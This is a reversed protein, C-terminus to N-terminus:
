SLAESASVYVSTGDSYYSVLYTGATSVDWSAGKKVESGLSITYASPNILTIFGAQGATENSFELDDNAAPTYQFNNATDLDLTGDTVVSPTGRQTGAWSQDVDTKATDADYAQVDSGIAIGLNTRATSADSAGTGGHTVAVDTAAWTGSAVTGTTVINGGGVNHSSFYTSVTDVNTMKMTGGDNILIGDGSAVADTGRATDGDILNVEATTSTVGDLINLEAATSTVNTGGIDLTTVSIEGAITAIGSAVTILDTDDTHGITTGNILVNDIDLSGGSILGTTTIASSGTDITGFGSTISGADVAGVSTVQTQAADVSLTDGTLTIGTGAALNTDDGIDITGRTITQGSITIYDPTGALTVATSNDTGAVDVGITTRVAGADADDVITAGFTSITTSAPLAFTKLDADVESDMLAGAATVNTTDTVDASAEIAALKSQEADSFENTDSNSEYLTKISAATLDKSVVTWEDEADADDVEAILVDGIEAAVTFFNGAATVTYMDGIKVGSPSTDLDPSNTSANYAGKYSMESTLTSAIEGDVYAKISQQTALFTASDSSMNDEDKVPVVFDLNGNTDDYGVTIFTETGDLMGGVYDEVQEQTLTTDTQADVYAKISQQTALFTASDSALDDEDKVPVVFDINGDGDDYTATIFTETGDLMGGVFDEVQEQTLTAEHTQSDVYAKVSQQTALHTASDSSMDDEDKVPVVFDLTGDSDEYTTTIFTETNGTVMGGVFDEVQEETLAAEHTKSDVYAKISQQTAVLTASNSSMDDEDAVASGSVGTNLVASTLTKSTLVQSGTLTAVTSDIAIDDANATIGTGGVVDLTADGGTAGGTLGSGAVVSTIDGVTPSAWAPNAGGGGSTLVQGSSGTGLRAPAGSAGYYLVDGQTGDELKALTIANDAVADTDVADDALESSGVADAAIESSGVADAAIKSANIADAAVTVVGANTMTADGSLAAATFGTGDGILIQTTALAKDSPVGSSNADRVKITNAAMDALEANAVGGDKVTVAGSSVSFNDTSFSAVGKNGSTADEASVTITGSSEAVDIGEGASYTITGGLATATSNSGDSVTISSNALKANAISGALMSNEVSTAAITVAGASSITADGSVVAPNYNTGDGVLIAGSTNTTMTLDDGTITLDGAITVNNSDDISVGSAQLTGTTGDYRAITNDVTTVPGTTLAGLLNVRTIRKSTGSDNVLIEMSDNGSTSETLESIKKTAM